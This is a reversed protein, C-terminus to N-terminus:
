QQYEGYPSGNFRKLLPAEYGELSVELSTDGACATVPVELSNGNPELVKLVQAGPPVHDITWTGDANALTALERVPVVVVWARMNSHIDCQLRFGGEKLFAVPEPEAKRTPNIRVTTRDSTFVSHEKNDRNPFGVSDNKQVILMRPTFQQDKQVIEHRKPESLKASRRKSTVYVVVDSATLKPDRSSFTVKGSLSCGQAPSHKVEGLSDVPRPPRPTDPSAKPPAPPLAILLPSTPHRNRFAAAVNPLEPSQSFAATLVLLADREERVDDHPFDAEHKTLTAAAELLRNHELADRVARRSGERSLPRAQVVAEPERLPAPPPAARAEVPPAEVRPAEPKASPAPEAVRPAEVSPAPVEPQARFSSVAWAGVAAGLLGTIILLAPGVPGRAPSAGSRVSDSIRKWLRETLAAPPPPPAQREPALMADLEPDREFM